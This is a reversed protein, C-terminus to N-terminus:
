RFNEIAMLNWNGSNTYALLGGALPIAPHRVRAGALDLRQPSGPPNLAVRWLYTSGSSRDGGAYVLSRSDPLWAIGRIYIGEHTIRRQRKPLSDPGMELVYVDCPSVGAVCSVYALLKGDPSFAPAHDTGTSNSTIRRKEGPGAPFLHIQTGGGPDRDPAAIWKGDRSWSMQPLTEHGQQAIPALLRAPGGATPVRYIGPERGGRRFAISRGDPSWAPGWDEVSGDTLSRPQADPSVPRVYIGYGGQGAHWSFAITRGDPSFSPDRELGPYSALVAPFLPGAHSAPVAVSPRAVQPIPAAVSAPASATSPGGNGGSGPVKGEWSLRREAPSSRAVAPAAPRTAKWTVGTGAVAMAVLVAAWVPKRRRTGAPPPESRMRELARRVEEMSQVRQGADERLCREILDSLGAPVSQLSAPSHSAAHTGTAMESLVIGLAFIDSRADAPNGNLQSPSMYALTGAVAGGSDNGGGAMQAVGFDLVKAGSKAIMINAPKLDRHVMGQAHAAALADAIEAGYRLVEEVGLPGRGLRAALSEGEVYEMVLYATGDQEGIDYLGCVHPHNLASIARAETQFRHSFEANLVKIAVTRGLRTDRAKYVRGMGGAGAEELIEYPGLRAGVPLQSDFQLGDWAPRDLLGTGSVYRLMKEVERRLEGDGSTEVALFGDRDQPQRERASQFVQKVRQWREATV